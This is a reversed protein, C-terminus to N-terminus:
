IRKQDWIKKQSDQSLTKLLFHRRIIINDKMALKKQEKIQIPYLGIM